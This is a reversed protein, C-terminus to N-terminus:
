HGATSRIPEGDISNFHVQDDMSAQSSKVTTKGNGPTSDAARVLGSAIVISVSAVAVIRRVARSSNTFKM